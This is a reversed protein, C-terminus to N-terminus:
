SSRDGATPESWRGPIRREKISYCVRPDSQRKDSGVLAPGTSRTARRHRYGSTSRLGAGRVHFCISERTVSSVCAARSSCALDSEPTRIRPSLMSRVSLITSHTSLRSGGNIMVTCAYRRIPVREDLTLDALAGRGSMNSQGALVYLEPPPAAPALASCCTAMIAVYTKRM